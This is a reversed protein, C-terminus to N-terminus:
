SNVSSNEVNRQQYSLLLEVVEKVKSARALDLASDGESTKVDVNDIGSHILEILFDKKGELTAIHIPRLGRDDWWKECDPCTEGSTILSRARDWEQMLMTLMLSKDLQWSRWDNVDADGRLCQLSTAWDTRKKQHLFKFCRCLRNLIEIFVQLLYDSVHIHGTILALDRSPAQQVHGLRQRSLQLIRLSSPRELPAERTCLELLETLVPDEKEINLM